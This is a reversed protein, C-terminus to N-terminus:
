ARRGNAPGDRRRIRGVAGGELVEELENPDDNGLMWYLKIGKPALREEALLRGNRSASM